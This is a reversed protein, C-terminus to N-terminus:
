EGRVMTFFEVKTNAAKRSRIDRRETLAWELPAVISKEVRAHHTDTQLMADLVAVLEAHRRSRGQVFGLGATGDALRVAGRTMTMEGLNFRGGDGGARGRVMVMGIEPQRIVTWSPPDPLEAWLAELDAPSTKALVSLWRQRAANTNPETGDQESSPQDM